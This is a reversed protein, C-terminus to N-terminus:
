WQGGMHSLIGTARDLAQGAQALLQRADNLEQRATEAAETIDSGNDMRITGADRMTRLEGWIQEIAQPMGWVAQKLENITSYIQSPEEFARTGLTRHNLARIEEAASRAITAPERNLNM